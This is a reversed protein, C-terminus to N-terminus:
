LTVIRSLSSTTVIMGPQEDGDDAQSTIMPAGYLFGVLLVFALLFGTTVFPSPHIRLAKIM